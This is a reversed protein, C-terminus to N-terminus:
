PNPDQALTVSHAVQKSHLQECKAKIDSLKTYGREVFSVMNGLMWAVWQSLENLDKASVHKYAARHVARSRLRYLKAIRRKMTLLESEPVFEYGGYVLVCALGVSVSQTIHAPDTSFFTEVCSWYKVLKMVPVPDRHADSFWYIAKLLADELETRKKSEVIKFALAFISAAAFQDAMQQDIKFEQSAGWDRHTTLELDKDNWSLWIATGKVLEPSMAIGIRFASAGRSYMSAAFVALIGTALEARERFREEAVRPTGGSEGLLWLQRKTMEIVADLHNRDGRVGSEDIRPIPSHVLRLTGLELVDLGDMEVGFLPVAFTYNGISETVRERVTQLFAAATRPTATEALTKELTAHCATWIDAYGALGDFLDAQDITEVIRRLRALGAESLVFTGGKPARVLRSLLSFDQAPPDTPPPLPGWSKRGFLGAVADEITRTQKRSFEGM